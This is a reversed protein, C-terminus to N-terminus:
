GSKDPQEPALAALLAEVVAPDLQTGRCNRLEEYVEAESLKRRGPWVSNMASFTDAVALVRALYPTAEGKLGDPYGGGDWHEHHHRVIPAIHKLAPIQELWGAAIAPHRQVEAMEEGTLRDTKRLIAEPVVAMGIDHLQSALRLAEIDEASM